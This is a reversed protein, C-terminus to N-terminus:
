PPKTNRHKLPIRAVWDFASDGLQPLTSFSFRFFELFRAFSRFISLSLSLSIPLFILPRYPFFSSRMSSKIPSPSDRSFKIAKLKTILHLLYTFRCNFAMTSQHSVVVVSYFNLIGDTSISHFCFLGFILSFINYLRLRVCECEDSLCNCLM